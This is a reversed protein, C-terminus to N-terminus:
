LSLRFHHHHLCLTSSQTLMQLYTFPFLTTGLCPANNLHPIIMVMAVTSHICGCLCELEVFLVDMLLWFQNSIYKRGEGMEVM